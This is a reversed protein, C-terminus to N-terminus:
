PCAGLSSWDGRRQQKHVHLTPYWDEARHWRWDHDYDILVHANSHGIAGALNACATDVMILMDMNAMLAAVDSFDNFPHVKVRNALAGIKDGTQLSHLTYGRPLLTLFMELAISRTADRLHKPDGSWAIGLHRGNGQHWLRKSEESVMLYPTLPIGDFVVPLSMIPLYYDFSPRLLQDIVECDFQQALSVLPLPVMLTVDNTAILQPVYRLMMITDGFGWEHLVALRGPEGHWCEVGYRWMRRIVPNDRNGIALESFGRRYNGVHLLDMGLKHQDNM